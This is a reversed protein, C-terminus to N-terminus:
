NCCTRHYHFLLQFTDNSGMNGTRHVESEELPFEDVPLNTIINECIREAVEFRVIRLSM